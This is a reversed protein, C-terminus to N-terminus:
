IKIAMHNPINSPIIMKVSNHHSKAPIQLLCLHKRLDIFYSTYAQVVRCCWFIEILILNECVTRRELFIAGGPNLFQLQGCQEKWEIEMLQAARIYNM